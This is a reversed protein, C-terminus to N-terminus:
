QVESTHCTVDLSFTIHVDEKVPLILICICISQHIPVPLLQSPFLLLEKMGSVMWVVVVVHENLVDNFVTRITLLLKFAKKLQM